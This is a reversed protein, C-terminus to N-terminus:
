RKKVREVRDIENIVALVLERAFADEQYKRSIATAEDVFKQLEENDLSSTAYKSYLKWCDCFLSFVSKFGMM